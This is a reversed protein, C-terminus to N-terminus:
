NFQEGQRHSWLTRFIFKLVRDTKNTWHAYCKFHYIAEFLVCSSHEGAVVATGTWHYYLSLFRCICDIRVNRSYFTLLRSLSNKFRNPVVPHSGHLELQPIHPQSHCVRSAWWSNRPLLIPYPHINWSPFPCSYTHYTGWHNRNTNRM